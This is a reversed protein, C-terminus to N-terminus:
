GNDNFYNLSYGKVRLKTETFRDKSYKGAMGLDTLPWFSSPIIPFNGLIVAGAKSKTSVQERAGACQNGM